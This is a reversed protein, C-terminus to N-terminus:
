KPHKEDLVRPFWSLVDFRVAPANKVFDMLIDSREKDTLEELRAITDNFITTFITVDAM